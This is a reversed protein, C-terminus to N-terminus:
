RDQEKLPTATYALPIAAIGFLVHIWGFNSRDTCFLWVLITLLAARAVWTLLRGLGIDARDDRQYLSDPAHGHDTMM